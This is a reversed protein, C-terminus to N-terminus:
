YHDTIGAFIFALGLGRMSPPVGASCEAKVLDHMAIANDCGFLAKSFMQVRISHNRDIALNM